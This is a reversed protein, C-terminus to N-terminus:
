TATPWGDLLEDRLRRTSAPREFLLGFGALDQAHNRLEEVLADFANEVTPKDVERRRLESALLKILDARHSQDVFVGEADSNHLAGPMRRSIEGLLWGGTLREKEPIRKESRVIQQAFADACDRFVRDVVDRAIGPKFRQIARTPNEARNVLLTLAAGTSPFQLPKVGGGLLDVVSNLRHRGWERYLDLLHREWRAAVESDIEVTKRTTELGPKLLEAAIRGEPTILYRHPDIRIAQIPSIPGPLEVEDIQVLAGRLRKGQAVPDFYRRRLDDVDPRLGAMQRKFAAKWLLDLSERLQGAAVSSLQAPLGFVAPSDSLTPPSSIV